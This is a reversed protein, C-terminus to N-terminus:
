KIKANGAAPSVKILIEGFLGTQSVDVMKNHILMLVALFALIVDIKAKGGGAAADRFSTEAASNVRSMLEAMKEELTVIRALSQEELKSFSPLTRLFAKYASALGAASVNKPPYFVTPLDFYPPRSFRPPRSAAWKGLNGALVKLRQYARLREELDKIDAEEEDSLTLSPLLSRSKILILRSAVVLFNALTREYDESSVGTEMQKLYELFQGTVEGLSIENIALRKEEILGLLLDLPGTFKALNVHYM